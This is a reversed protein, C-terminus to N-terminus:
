VQSIRAHLQLQRGIYQAFFRRQVHHATAMTAGRDDSTRQILVFLVGDHGALQVVYSVRIGAM